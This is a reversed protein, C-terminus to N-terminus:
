RPRQAFKYRLRGLGSGVMFALMLFFIVYGFDGM